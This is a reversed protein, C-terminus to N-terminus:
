LFIIIIKTVLGILILLALIGLILILYNCSYYDVHLFKLLIIFVTLFVLLLLKKENMIKVAIIAALILRTMAHRAHQM